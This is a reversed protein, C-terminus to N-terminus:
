SLPQSPSLRGGPTPELVRLRRPPRAPLDVGGAHAVGPLAALADRAASPARVLLAHHLRLLPLADLRRLAPALASAEPGDLVLLFHSSEPPM